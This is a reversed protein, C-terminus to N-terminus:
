MGEYKSKFYSCKTIMQDRDMAQIVDHCSAIKLCHYCISKKLGWWNMLILIVNEKVKLSEEDM